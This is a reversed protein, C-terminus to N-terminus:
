NSAVLSYIDENDLMTYDIEDDYVNQASQWEHQRGSQEAVHSAGGARQVAMYASLGAVAVAVCAAVAVARRCRHWWTRRLPLMPTPRVDEEAAVNDMVAQALGDFYGDPVKFPNRRGLRSEIYQEDSIMFAKRKTRQMKVRAALSPKIM